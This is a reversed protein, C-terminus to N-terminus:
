RNFKVLHTLLNIFFFFVNKKYFGGNPLDYKHNLSSKTLKREVWHAFDGFFLRFSHKAWQTGIAIVFCKRRLSHSDKLKDTNRKNPANWLFSVINRKEDTKIEREDHLIGNVSVNVNPLQGYFFFFFIFLNRIM